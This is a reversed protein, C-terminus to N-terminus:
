NNKLSPAEDEYHCIDIRCGSQEVFRIFDECKVKVRKKTNGVIAALIPSNKKEKITVM